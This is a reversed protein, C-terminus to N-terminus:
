FHKMLVRIMRVILSWERTLDEYVRNKRDIILIIDEVTLGQQEM